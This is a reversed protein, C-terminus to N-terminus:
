ETPFSADRWRRSRTLRTAPCILATACECSRAYHAEGRRAQDDTHATGGIAEGHTQQTRAPGLGAGRSRPLSLSSRPAGAAPPLGAVYRCARVIGVTAVVLAAKRWWDLRMAEM